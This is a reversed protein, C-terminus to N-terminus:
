VAWRWVVIALAPFLVMWSILVMLMLTDLASNDKKSVTVRVLEPGQEGVYLAM